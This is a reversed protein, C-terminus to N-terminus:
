KEDTENSENDKICGCNRPYGPAEGDIFEECDKCIIGDMIMDVIANM